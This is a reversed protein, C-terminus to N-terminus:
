SSQNAIKSVDETTAAATTASLDVQEGRKPDQSEPKQPPALTGPEGESTPKRDPYPGRTHPDYTAATASERRAPNVADKLSDIIDAM